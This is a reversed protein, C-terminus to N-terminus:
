EGMDFADEAAWREMDSCEFYHVNNDECYKFFQEIKEVDWMLFKSYRGVRVDFVADAVMAKEQMSFKDFPKNYKKILLGVVDLDM